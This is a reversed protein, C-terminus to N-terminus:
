RGTALFIIAVVLLVWVIGSPAWGWTRAYPMYPGTGLGLLLLIIVVVALLDM